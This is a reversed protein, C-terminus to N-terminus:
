GDHPRSAEPERILADAMKVANEAVFEYGTGTMSCSTRSIMGQMARAAFYERVTLGKYTNAIPTPFARENPNM